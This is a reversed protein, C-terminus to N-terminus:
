VLALFWTNLNIILSPDLDALYTPKTLARVKMKIM